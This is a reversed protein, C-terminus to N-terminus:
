TDTLCAAHEGLNALWQETEAFACRRPAPGLATGIPMITLRSSTRGHRVCCRVLQDSIQRFMQLRLRIDRHRVKESRPGATGGSRVRIYVHGYEEVVFTCIEMTPPEIQHRSQARVDIQHNQVVRWRGQGVPYAPHRRAPRGRCGPALRAHTSRPGSGRCRVSAACGRPPSAGGARPPASQDITLHHPSHDGSQASTACATRM